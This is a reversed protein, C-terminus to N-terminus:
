INTCHNLSIFCWHWRGRWCLRAISLKRTQSPLKNLIFHFSKRWTGVEEYKQQLSWTRVFSCPRWPPSTTTILNPLTWLGWKQNRSSSSRTGHIAFVIKQVVRLAYTVIMWNVMAVSCRICVSMNWQVDVNAPSRVSKPDYLLRSCSGLGCQGRLLSWTGNVQTYLAVLMESWSIGWHAWTPIKLRSPFRKVYAGDWKYNLGKFGSNFGM